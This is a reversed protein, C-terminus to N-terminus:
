ATVKRRRAPRRRGACSDFPARGRPAFSRTVGAPFGLEVHGGCRTCDSRFPFAPDPQRRYRTMAHGREEAERRMESKVREDFRM